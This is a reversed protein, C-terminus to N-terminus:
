LTRDNGELTLERHLVRPREMVEEADGGFAPGLTEEQMLALVGEVDQLPSAHGVAFVKCWARRCEPL